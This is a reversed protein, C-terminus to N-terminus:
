ADSEGEKNHCAICDKHLFEMIKKVKMCNPKYILSKGVKKYSCLGAQSLLSLHFSLTNRPIKLKTAIDSPCIGELSNKVLIKYIELRTEQALATFIMIAEPEKMYSLAKYREM